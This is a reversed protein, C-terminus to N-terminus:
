IEKNLSEIRIILSIQTNDTAVSVSSYHTM